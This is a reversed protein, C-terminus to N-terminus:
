GVSDPADVLMMSTLIVLGRTVLIAKGQNRHDHRVGADGKLMRQGARFQFVYLVYLLIVVILHMWVM